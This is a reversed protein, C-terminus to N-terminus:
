IGIEPEPSRTSKEEITYDFQYIKHVCMNEDNYLIVLSEEGTDITAWVYEGIYEEGIHFTENNVNIDGKGDVMRIFHVKGSVLPINNVDLKFNRALKRNPTNSHLNGFKEKWIIFKNHSKTFIKFKTQIDNL